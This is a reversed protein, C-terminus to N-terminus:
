RGPRAKLVTRPAQKYNFNGVLVGNWARFGAKIACQGLSVNISSQDCIMLRGGALVALLTYPVYYVSASCVRSSCLCFEDDGLVYSELVATIIVPFPNKKGREHMEEPSCACTHLGLAHCARVCALM